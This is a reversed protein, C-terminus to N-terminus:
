AMQLRKLYESVNSPVNLRADDIFASIRKKYQAEDEGPKQEPKKIKFEKLIKEGRTVIYFVNEEDKQLTLTVNGKPTKFGQMWNIFQKAM